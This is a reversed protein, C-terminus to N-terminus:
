SVIFKVTSGCQDSSDERTLTHANGFHVICGEILGGALAAFPRPSRYLLELQGDNLHQHELTPLEADPYLKRVEVHIHSGVQSLFDLANDKGEFLMPFGIAFRTFLHLGFEHLLVPVTLGAKASLATLMRELEEHDYTGVSTYAGGSASDSVEILHDVTDPGFRNEIMEIFETFVIGKM